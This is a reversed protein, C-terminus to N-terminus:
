IAAKAADEASKFTAIAPYMDIEIVLSDSDGKASVLVVDHVCGKARRPSKNKPTKM